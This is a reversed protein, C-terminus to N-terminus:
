HKPPKSNQQLFLLGKKVLYIGKYILLSSTSVFLILLRPGYVGWYQGGLADSRYFSSHLTLLPFQQSLAVLFVEPQFIPAGLANILFYPNEFFTAPSHPGTGPLTRYVVLLYTLALSNYLTLVRFSSRVAPLLGMLEIWLAIAGAYCGILYRYGFDSGTGNWGIILVFELVMWFWAGRAAWSLRRFFVAGLLVAAILWPATWLTGFDLGLFVTSVSAWSMAKLLDLLTYNQFGVFSALALMLSGLVTLCGFVARRNTAVSWRPLLSQPSKQLADLFAGGLFLVVPADNYRTLLLLLSAVCALPWARVRTFYLTAMACAIEATHAMITRHTAYYLAPVCLLLILAALPSSKWGLSNLIRAHALTKQLFILAIGWLFFSWLGVMPAVWDETVTNTLWALASAPLAAPLWLLPTGLAYYHRRGAEQCGHATMGIWNGLTHMYCGDDSNWAFVFAWRARFFLLFVCAILFLVTALESTWFSYNNRNM